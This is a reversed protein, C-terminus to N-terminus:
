GAVEVQCSQVVCREIHFGCSASTGDHNQIIQPGRRHTHTHAHTHTHTHVHTHTPPNCDPEARHFTGFCYKTPYADWGKTSWGRRLDERIRPSPGRRPTSPTNARRQMQTRLRKWGNTATRLRECGNAVTGLRGCGDAVTAHPSCATGIPLGM